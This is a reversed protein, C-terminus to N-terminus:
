PVMAILLYLIRNRKKQKTKNEWTFDLPSGSKGVGRNGGLQGGLM